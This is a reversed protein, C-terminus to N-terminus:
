VYIDMDVYVIYGANDTYLTVTQCILKSIQKTISFPIIHERSVQMGPTERSCYEVFVWSVLSPLVGCMMYVGRVHMYSIGLTQEPKGFLVLYCGYIYNYQTTNEVGM